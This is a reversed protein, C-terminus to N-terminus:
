GFASDEILLKEDDFRKDDESTGALVYSKMAGAKGKDVSVILYSCAFWHAEALDTKSWDASHNPHSHYFGIIDLQAERAHKQVSILDEPAISYRTDMEPSANRAPVVDRVFREGGNLKGLLVGCCEHPYAQEALMRIKAAQEVSIRLM